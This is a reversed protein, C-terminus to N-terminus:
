SWHVSLNRVIYRYINYIYQYIPAHYIIEGICLIDSVNLRYWMNDLPFLFWHFITFSITLEDKSSVLSSIMSAVPRCRDLPLDGPLVSLNAADEETAWWINEQVELVTRMAGWGGWWSKRGPFPAVLLDSSLTPNSGLSTIVRVQQGTSM